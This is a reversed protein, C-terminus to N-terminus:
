IMDLSLLTTDGKKQHFFINMIFPHFYRFEVLLVTKQTIKTIEFTTSIDLDQTTKLQLWKQNIKGTVPDKMPVYTALLDNAFEAFNRNPPLFRVVNDFVKKSICHFINSFLHRVLFPAKKRQKFMECHYVFLFYINQEFPALGSPCQGDIEVVKELYPIENKSAYPLYLEVFRCFVRRIHMLEIGVTCQVYFSLDSDEYGLFCLNAGKYFLQYPFLTTPHPRKHNIIEKPYKIKYRPISILYKHILAFAECMRNFMYTFIKDPPVDYLTPDTYVFEADNMIEKLSKSTLTYTQENSLFSFSTIDQEDISESIKKYRSQRKTSADGYVKFEDSIKEIVHSVPHFLENKDLQSFSLNPTQFEFGISTKM